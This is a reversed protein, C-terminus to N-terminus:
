KFMKLEEPTPDRKLGKSGPQADGFKVKSPTGPPARPDPNPVFEKVRGSTIDKSSGDPYKVTTGCGVDRTGRTERFIQQAPGHM